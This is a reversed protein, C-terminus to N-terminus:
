CHTLCSLLVRFGGDVSMFAKAQEPGVALVRKLERLCKVGPKKSAKLEAGLAAAREPSVDGQDEEEDFTFCLRRETFMAERAFQKDKFFVNRRDERSAKMRDKPALKENKSRPGEM